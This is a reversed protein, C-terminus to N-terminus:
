DDKYLKHLGEVYTVIFERHPDCTLLNRTGAGGKTGLKDADRFHKLYGEFTEPESM